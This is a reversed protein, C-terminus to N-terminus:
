MALPYTKKLRQKMDTEMLPHVVVPPIGYPISKEIIVTHAILEPAKIQMFDYILSDVAAGDALGNVVAQISNDHSYTFFTKKFFNEPTLHRKALYYDPVMFGTNSLPDTFVFTKGKFDEFANIGSDPSTIFYSHYVRQGHCVPVAIIEMGFQEKGTVYPGSCVFAVDLKREKVMNNIESYTKKQIFTTKLGILHGILELLEVYYQYTYHPSIM